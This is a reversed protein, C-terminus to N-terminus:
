RGEGTVLRDTDAWWSVDVDAARGVRLRASIDDPLEERCIWDRRRGNSRRPVQSSLWLSVDFRCACDLGHRLLRHIDHWRIWLVKAVATGIFQTPRAFLDAFIGCREHHATACFLLARRVRFSRHWYAWLVRGNVIARQERTQAIRVPNAGVRHRVLVRNPLGRFGGAVLSFLFLVGAIRAHKKVNM